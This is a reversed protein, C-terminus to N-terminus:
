TAPRGKAEVPLHSSSYSTLLAGSGVLITLSVILYNRGLDFLEGVLVPGIAAATGVALQFASGARGRLHHSVSLLVLSNAAPVYIMTAFSALLISVFCMFYTMMKGFQLCAGVSILSLMLLVAAIILASNREFRSIFITIKSQFFIQLLWHVSFMVTIFSVPLHLVASFYLPFVITPLTWGFGILIQGILFLMLHRDAAIERWSGPSASNNRRSQQATDFRAHKIADPSVFMFVLFLAAALSLAIINGFLLLNFVVTTSGYKLAILTGILSGCGMATNTIVETKSIWRDVNGSNTVQSTLVAWASYYLRDVAMVAFVVLIIIGFTNAFLYLSYGAINGCINLLLLRKPNYTDALAGTPIAIPLACVSAITFALGIDSATLGSHSTFFLFAVPSFLGAGVNSFALAAFLYVRGKIPTSVGLVQQTM